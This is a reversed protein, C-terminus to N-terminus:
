NVYIQIIIFWAVFFNSNVYIRLKCQKYIVYHSFSHRWLCNIVFISTLLHPSIGGHKTSPQVGKYNKKFKISVIENKSM